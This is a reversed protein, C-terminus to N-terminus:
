TSTRPSLAKRINRGEDEMVLTFEGDQTLSILDYTLANEFFIQTPQPSLRRGFASGRHNALAELDLSKKIKSLLLTKGSGTRGGLILPELRSCIHETEDILYRRFAKYGGRLRSVECGAERMWKQAIESRQGGRFCYLLANQNRKKFECWAEIRWERKKGSVLEYGL